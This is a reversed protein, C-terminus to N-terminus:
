CAESQALVACSTTKTRSRKLFRGVHRPSISEVIERKKAELAIETPTWHTVPRESQEEPSECAIAVIQGVQQATFKKKTGSRPADGLLQEIAKELQKRTEGCELSVLRDFAKKWRVRWKSIAHREMGLIGAIEDNRHKAFALLIIRSRTVLSQASTPRRVFFELVDKQRETIVVKAATGPM